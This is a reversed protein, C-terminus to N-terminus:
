YNIFPKEPRTGSDYPALADRIADAHKIMLDTVTERWADGSIDTDAHVCVFFPELANRAFERRQSQVRERRAQMENFKAEDAESWREAMPMAPVPRTPSPTPVESYGMLVGGERVEELPM